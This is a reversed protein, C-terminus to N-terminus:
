TRKHGHNGKQSLAELHKALAQKIGLATKQMVSKIKEKRRACGACPM